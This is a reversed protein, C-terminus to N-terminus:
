TDCSLLQELSWYISTADHNQSSSIPLQSFIEWCDWCPRSVNLGLQFFCALRCSQGLESFVAIAYSNQLQSKSDCVMGQRVLGIMVSTCHQCKTPVSFTKITFHHAQVPLCLTTPLLVIFNVVNFIVGFVSLLLFKM